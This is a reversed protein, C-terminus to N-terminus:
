ENKVSIRGQIITEDGTHNNFYRPFIGVQVNIVVQVIISIEYKKWGTHNNPGTRINPLYSYMHVKLQRLVLVKIIGYM